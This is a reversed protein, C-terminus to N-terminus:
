APKPSSGRPIGSPLRPVPPCGGLRLVPVGPLPVILRLAKQRSRPTSPSPQYLCFTTKMPIL